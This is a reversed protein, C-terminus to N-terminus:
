SLPCYSFNYLIFSHYSNLKGLKCINKGTRKLIGHQRSAKKCVNSVHLDFKLKFDITVGLLKVKDELQKICGNCLDFCLNENKSKLGAAIAQFKDPNAQMHNDSFWDVCIVSDKTFVSKLIQPDSHSYTVTNDDAYNRM